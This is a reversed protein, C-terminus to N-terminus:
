LDEVEDLYTSSIHFAILQAPIYYLFNQIDTNIPQVSNENWIKACPMIITFFKSFGAKHIDASCHTFWINSSIFFHQNSYCRSYWQFDNLKIYKKTCFRRHVITHQLAGDFFFIFYTFRTAGTLGFTWFIGVTVRSRVLPTHFFTWFPVFTFSLQYTRHIKSSINLNHDETLNHNGFLNYQVSLVHYAELCIRCPRYSQKSQRTLHQLIMRLGPTQRSEKRFSQCYWLDRM